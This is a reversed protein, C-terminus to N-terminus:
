LVRHMWQHRDEARGHQIQLLEDRLSISLPGPQGDGMLFDKGPGKVRGIPTVVAATGCAFAESMSGSRADQEWQQVTMTREETKWGRDRALTLLSDRTIGPLLSGTLRPTVLTTEPGRRYVFFVNMGGMEEVDRHQLADLWVVQDCGERAAQEQALLSAAYNGACKVAGTGGPVARVYDECLWVCVPRLGGSFYNGAPSAIFLLLYERAARVGLYSETAIMLPRLYLSQGQAQPVWDRDQRVLAEACALTLEVPCEPMALRRASSQLRLANAQPRFLGVGGDPQRYAKFGEFISQGYHLGSAAPDFTLPGYATLRPRGWDGKEFRVTVMHDTFRSGFAPSELIAAREAPATPHDTPQLEVTAAM